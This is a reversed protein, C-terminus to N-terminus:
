VRFPKTNSQEHAHGNCKVGQVAQDVTGRCPHFGSLAGESDSARSVTLGVVWNKFTWMQTWHQPLGVVNLAPQLEKVAEAVEGDKLGGQETEIIM